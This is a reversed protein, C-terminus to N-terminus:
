KSLPDFVDRGDSIMGTNRVIRVARDDWLEVMMFDKKCTIPLVEGINELSWERIDELEDEKAHAARATMIKVVVGERRWSRVRDVMSQVPSGIGNEQDNVALTGDLDVGIWAPNEEIIKRWDEM